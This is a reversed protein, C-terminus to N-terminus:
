NTQCGSDKNTLQSNIKIEYNLITQVNQKEISTLDTDIFSPDLRYWSQKQFYCTLDQSKFSRGHRAYIENRAVKLQWPTLSTLEIEKIIKKDSGPLIFNSSSTITPKLSPSPTATVEKVPATIMIDSIKPTPVATPTLPIEIKQPTKGLYYTVALGSILASGLVVVIILPLIQNSKQEM